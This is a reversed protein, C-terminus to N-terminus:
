RSYVCIEMVLQFSFKKSLYALLGYYLGIYIGSINTVLQM